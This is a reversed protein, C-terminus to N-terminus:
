AAAREGQFLGCADCVLKVWTAKQGGDTNYLKLTLQRKNKVTPAAELIRRQEEFPVRDASLPLEVYSVAPAGSVSVNADPQLVAGPEVFTRGHSESPSYFAEVPEESIPLPQGAQLLRLLLDQQSAPAAQRTAQPSGAPQQRLPKDPLASLLRQRQAKDLLGARLTAVERGQVATFVGAATKRDPLESPPIAGLARLDGTSLGTNPQDAHTATQYGALFLGIQSRWQTDLNSVTQAAIIYRIGMSRASTLEQGLWTALETKSTAGALLALEAVYVVLLPLDGGEYEDWKTAKAQWLLETRREREVSLAKMAPAIDAATRALRWTHAKDQWGNWDLGGKGDVICAQFEAPSHQAALALLINLAANDKGSDTQGTILIHNVDGVFSAAILAAQGDALNWGLPATYRDKPWHRAIYRLAAGLDAPPHALAMGAGPVTSLDAVQIPAPAAPAVTPAPRGAAQWARFQAWDHRLGRWRSWGIAAGAAIILLLM